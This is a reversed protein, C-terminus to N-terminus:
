TVIVIEALGEFHKKLNEVEECFIAFHKEELLVFTVTELLTQGSQILTHIEDLMIGACKDIPFAGVGTGLAPLAISKAKLEAAKQLTSKVASRITRADAWIGLPICAAHIIHKAKLAGATTVAAEGLPITGIKNCEEQIIQGGVRRIAGSVGSGMILDNNASNVIVDVEMETVDGRKIFIKMMRSNYANEWSNCDGAFREDFYSADRGAITM